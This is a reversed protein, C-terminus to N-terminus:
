WGGSAGGGGTSGGGFSGGSFGGGGGFGGRGRGGFGPAIIVPPAAVKPITYPSGFRHHCNQCDYVAVGQGERSATPAKITRKATLMAARATCQPCEKYDKRRNVYPIVDREGCNPCLWVDYDVSNLREEADQAGTLYQNDTQEDLRKMRKGCNPCSRRRMRIHRMVGLYIGLVPLPIGLAAVSGVIAPLKWRDFRAYAEATTLRRTSVALYVLLVLLLGAACFCLTLYLRWVDPGEGGGPYGNRALADADNAIGSRLEERAEDSTLAATVAQTAALVGAEYDGKKFEPVMKDRIIRSAVVDPMVGEAGYGTRIVARRDGVSVLVLVGNDRDKKGIGWATFLETAYDNIDRGDLDNVIVVVPEASSERWASALLADAQQRASPSLVGAMDTVYRSRDALHVNTVDKVAEARLPAVAVAAAALFVCLYLLFRKM